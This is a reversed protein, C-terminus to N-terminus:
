LRVHSISLCVSVIQGYFTRRTWCAFFSFVTFCDDTWNSTLLQLNKTNNTFLHVPGSNSANSYSYVSCWYLMITQSLQLLAQSITAMCWKHSLRNTRLLQATLISFSHELHTYHPPHFHKGTTSPCKKYVTKALSIQFSSKFHLPTNQATSCLDQLIHPPTQAWCFRSVYPFFTRHFSISHM